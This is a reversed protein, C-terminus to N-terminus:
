MWVYKSIIPNTEEFLIRFGDEVVDPLQQSARRWQTDVRKVAAIVIDDPATRIDGVDEKIKNMCARYSSKNAEIFGPITDPADNFTTIIYDDLFM